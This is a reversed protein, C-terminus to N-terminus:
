IWAMLPARVIGTDSSHIRELELELWGGGFVFLLASEKSGNNECLQVSNTNGPAEEYEVETWCHCHRKRRRRRDRSYHWEALACWLNWLLNARLVREAPHARSIRGQEGEIYITTRRMKRWGRSRHYQIWITAFNWFNTKKEATPVYKPITRRRRRRFSKDGVSQSSSSRGHSPQHM